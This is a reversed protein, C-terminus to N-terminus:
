CSTRSCFCREPLYYFVKTNNKIILKTVRVFVVLFSSILKWIDLDEKKKNIEKKPNEKDKKRPSFM